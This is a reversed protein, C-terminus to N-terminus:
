WSSSRSIKPRPTKKRHIIQHHTLPLVALTSLTRDRIESSVVRSAYVSGELWIGWVGMVLFFVALDETEPSSGTFFLFITLIALYVVSRAVLGVRGYTIFVFDKWVLPWSWVPRPPRQGGKAFRSSATAPEHACFRDWALWSLLFFLAGAGLDFLEAAGFSYGSGSLISQLRTAPLQALWATMGAATNGWLFNSLLYPLMQYGVVLLIMLIAARGRRRFIVSFFLSANAVLLLNCGLVVYAAVIQDIAVGGLAICLITFPLQAALISLATIQWSGSLGALLAVPSLRTLNLLSLTGGQKEETIVGTMAVAYLVILFINTYIIGAFLNLGQAGQMAGFAAMTVLQLFVIALVLCRLLAVAGSRQDSRLGRVFLAFIPQNVLLHDEM